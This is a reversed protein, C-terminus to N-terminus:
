LGLKKRQRLYGKYDGDIALANAPIKQNYWYIWAEVRSGSQELVYDIARIFLSAAKDSKEYGEYDDLIEFVSSNLVIQFLEGEIPGGYENKVAGPYEGLDFLDAKITAVGKYILHRKLTERVPNEMGRMLTGYVFIYEINPQNDTKM